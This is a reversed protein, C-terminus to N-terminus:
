ITVILDMLAEKLLKELRSSSSFGFHKRLRSVIDNIQIETRAIDFKITIGATDNADVLLKWYRMKNITVIQVHKPLGDSNLLIGIWHDLISDSMREHETPKGNLYIQIIFACLVTQLLHTSNGAYEDILEIKLWQADVSHSLKSNLFLIVKNIELHTKAIMKSQVLGDYEIDVVQAKQKPLKVWVRMTKEETMKSVEVNISDLTKNSKFTPIHKRIGALLDLSYKTYEKETVASIESDAITSEVIPEVVSEEVVTTKVKPVKTLKPVKTRNVVSMGLYRSALMEMDNKFAALTDSAINTSIRGLEFITDNLIITAVLINGKEITYQMYSGESHFLFSFHSNNKIVTSSLSLIYTFIIQPFLFFFATCSSEKKCLLKLLM